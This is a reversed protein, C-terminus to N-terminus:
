GAASPELADQQRVIDAAGAKERGRQRRMLCSLIRRTRFFRAPDQQAHRSKVFFVQAHCTRLNPFFPFFGSQNSRPPCPSFSIRVFLTADQPACNGYKLPVVKFGPVLATV